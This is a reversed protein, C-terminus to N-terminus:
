LWRAWKAMSKGEREAQLTMHFQRDNRVYDAAGAASQVLRNYSEYLNAATEAAQVAGLTDGSRRLNMAMRAMSLIASTQKGTDMRDRELSLRYWYAAQAPQNQRSFTEALSWSIQPHQPSYVSSRRLLVRAEEPPLLDALLVAADTRSPNWDLAGRLLSVRKNMDKMETIAQRSYLESQWQAVSIMTWGTLFLPLLLAAARRSNIAPTEQLSQRQPRASPRIENIRTIFSLKFSASGTRSRENATRAHIAPAPSDNALKSGCPPRSSKYANWSRSGKMFPEQAPGGMVALWLILLWLLGFSWDFDVASHLLLVLYPPFRGRSYCLIRYASWVLLLVLGATGILGINLLLDLYGSHVEAGVYPGSQVARWAQRWTDGGRGLWPATQFLEWADRYLRHRAAITGEGGALRSRAPLWVAAAAFVYLAAAVPGRLWACRRVARGPSHLGRCWWLGALVGGAWLGALWLLGPLVAPALQVMTLQRFLLAASAVPAASAALIAGAHRRDAALGAACSLAAALWVGRSETLLLAATYPALPLLAAAARLPSARRRLAAPLAFLRELLFAAMVAGFANPYQLLGGLRAGTASVLPDATRFVAHPLDLVGYVALLASGCLLLGTLHWILLVLWNGERTRGLAWAALGFTGYMGWRTWENLTSETSLPGGALHLGYLLLMWCAGALLLIVPGERLGASERILFQRVRPILLLGMCVGGWVACLGYWDGDFFLGAQVCAGVMVLLLMTFVLGRVAAQMMYVDERM